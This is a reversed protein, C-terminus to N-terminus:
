KAPPAGGPSLKTRLADGAEKATKFKGANVDALSERYVTIGHNVTVMTQDVQQPTAGKMYMAVDVKWKGDVKKLSMTGQVSQPMIIRASDGDIQERAKELNATTSRVADAPDGLVAKAQQDGFKDAMGRNLEAIAVATDAMATVLREETPTTAYLLDRMSASDGNSMAQVLLKITGKPTDTSAAVVAPQSTQAGSWTATTLIM